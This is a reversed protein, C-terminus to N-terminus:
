FDKEWDPFDVLEQIDFCWRFLRHPAWTRMILEEKFVWNRKRIEQLAKKKLGNIEWSLPYFALYPETFVDHIMCPQFHFQDLLEKAREENQILRRYQDFLLRATHSKGKLTLSVLCDILDTVNANKIPKCTQISLIGRTFAQYFGPMDEQRLAWAMCHWCNWPLSVVSTDNTQKSLCVQYLPCRNSETHHYIQLLLRKHYADTYLSLFSQNKTRKLSLLASSLADFHNEEILLTSSPIETFDEKGIRHLMEEVKYFTCRKCLGYPSSPDKPLWCDRKKHFEQISNKCNM